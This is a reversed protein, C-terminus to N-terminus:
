LQERKCAIHLLPHMKSTAYRFIDATGGVKVNDIGDYLFVMFDSADVLASGGNFYRHSRNDSSNQKKQHNYLLAVKYNRARLLMANFETFSANDFDEGYCSAEMPLIVEYRLGTEVAAEVMLRDAGEALASLVIVEQKPHEKVATSLISLLQAIYNPIESYKLDRHGCIGIKYYRKM